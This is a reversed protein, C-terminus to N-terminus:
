LEPPELSDVKSISDVESGGRRHIDEATSQRVAAYSPRPAAPPSDAVQTKGLLTSEVTTQSPPNVVAFPKGKVRVLVGDEEARRVQARVDDKGVRLVTALQEVSTYPRAGVETIVREYLSATKQHADVVDAFTDEEIMEEAQGSTPSVIACSTEPRGWQGGDESLVVRKRILKVEDAKETDRAKLVMLKLLTIGESKTRSESTVDLYLSYEVTGRIDTSGRERQADRKGKSNGARYAAWGSHHTIIISAKPAFRFLERLNSFYDSSSGSSNEEGGMSARYTDIIILRLPPVPEGNEDKQGKLWEVTGQIKSKLEVFGPAVIPVAEGDRFAFPMSTTLKESIRESYFNKYLRGREREAALLRKRVDDGEFPLYLVSGKQTEFGFWKEGYGVDFAMSLVLFGKGANSQATVITIGGESAMDRINELVRPRRIIDDRSQPRFPASM